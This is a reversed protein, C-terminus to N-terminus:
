DNFAEKASLNKFKKNINRGMQSVRKTIGDANTVFSNENRSILFAKTERWNKFASISDSSPSSKVIYM